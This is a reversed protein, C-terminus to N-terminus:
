IHKNYKKRCYKRTRGNTFKCRKKNKCLSKTLKRCRSYRVRKRYIQTTNFKKMRRASASSITANKSSSNTNISVYKKTKNGLRKGSPITLMEIDGSIPTSRKKKSFIM